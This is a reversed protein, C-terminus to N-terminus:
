VKCTIRHKPRLHFATGKAIWFFAVLTQISAFEPVTHRVVSADIFAYEFESNRALLQGHLFSANRVDRFFALNIKHTSPLHELNLTEISMTAAFTAARSEPRSPVLITIARYRRINFSSPQLDIPPACM